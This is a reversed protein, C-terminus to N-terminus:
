SRWVNVTYGWRANDVYETDMELSAFIALGSSETGDGSGDLLWCNACDKKEVSNM